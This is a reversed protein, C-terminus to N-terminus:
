GHTVQGVYLLYWRLLLLNVENSLAYVSPKANENTSERRFFFFFSSFSVRCECVCVIARNFHLDSFTYTLTTIGATSCHISSTKRKRNEKKCKRPNISGAGFELLKVIKSFLICVDPVLWSFQGCKNPFILSSRHMIIIYLKITFNVSYM